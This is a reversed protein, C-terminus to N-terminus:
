EGHRDRRHRPRRWGTHSTASSCATCSRSARHGTGRSRPSRLDHGPRRARRRDCDGPQMTHRAHAAIDPPDALELREAGYYTFAAWHFPHAFPRNQASCAERGVVDRYGDVVRAATEDGTVRLLDAIMDRDMTRLRQRCAVIASRVDFTGHAACLEAYFLRAFVLAAVDSVQWQTCIVTDVGAIELSSPLGSAEDLDLGPDAITSQCACLFALACSALSDDLLMDSSTWLEALRSLQDGHYRGWLTGHTEYELQREHVHRPDNDYREILRGLATDAYRVGPRALTWREATLALRLLPDGGHPWRWGPPPHMLLSSRMPDILDSFGHGAFHLIGANTTAAHAAEWTAVAGTLVRVRYGAASLRAGVSRAEAAAYALDLTPNGIVVASRALRPVRSRWSMWHALSPAVQVDLDALCALAWYPVSRLVRHPVVTLKRLHHAAAFRALHQGVTTNVRDLLANLSEPALRAPNIIDFLKGSADYRLFLQALARPDLGRDLAFWSPAARDGRLIGAMMLGSPLIGLSVIGEQESLAASIQAITPPAITMASLIPRKARLDELARIEASLAFGLPDRERREPPMHDGPVGRRLSAVRTEAALLARGAKSARLQALYRLRACKSREIMTLADAGRDDRAYLDALALADQSFERGHKAIDSPTIALLYNQEDRGVLSELLAIARAEHGLQMRLRAEFSAAFRWGESRADVVTAITDAGAETQGAATLVAGIMLEEVATTGFKRLQAILGPAIALLQAPTAGALADDGKRDELTETARLLWALAAFAASRRDNVALTLDGSLALAEATLAQGRALSLPMTKLLEVIVPAAGQLDGAAKRAALHREMAAALAVENRCPHGEPLKLVVRSAQHALEDHGELLGLALRARREDEDVRDSLQKGDLWEKLLELAEQSVLQMQERLQGHACGAGVSAVMCLHIGFRLIAVGLVRRRAEADGMGAATAIYEMMEILEAVGIKSDDSMVPSAAPSSM